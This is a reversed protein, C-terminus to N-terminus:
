EEATASETTEATMEATEDSDAPNAAERHELLVNAAIAGVILVGGILAFIGPKEGLVLFVWIPNLVAELLCILSANVPPTLDVGKSFMYYAMGIQITGLFVIAATIQPTFHLDAAAVFPAAIVITMLFGLMNSDANSAGPMRNVIFMGAFFVGSAVGLLNGIMKGPDLQDCFFLVMGAFAAALVLVERKKPKVRDIVCQMLLVFLPATYQLVIANAATTMKNSCAYLTTSACYCIAGLIVTKNIKVRLSKRMVAFFLFAFVSRFFNIVVGNFPVTKMVLGGTSWLAAAALIYLNGQNSNNKIKDSM